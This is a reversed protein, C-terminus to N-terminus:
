VILEAALDILEILEAPESRILAGRPRPVNLTGRPRASSM